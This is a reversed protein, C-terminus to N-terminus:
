AFLGDADYLKLRQRQISIAVILPGRPKALERPPMSTAKAGHRRTSPRREPFFPTSRYYRPEDYSWYFLAAQAKSGACIVVLAALVAIQWSRGAQGSTVSM